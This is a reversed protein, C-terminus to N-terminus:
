SRCVRRMLFRPLMSGGLASMVLILITSFGSLQERSKSLAALVLGFAGTAAATPVTMAIFGPLHGMLDLHFVLAGWLFKGAGRVSLVTM